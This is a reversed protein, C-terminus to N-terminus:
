CSEQDRLLMGTCKPVRFRNAFLECKCMFLYYVNLGCGRLTEFNAQGKAIIVDANQLLANAEDSIEEMWTGAVDNGNDMVRAVEALGVQEADDRNADNLVDGGRVLVTLKASPNFAGIARLFLKDMVVEGCNDTIYVVSQAQSLDNRLAAYNDERVAVSDATDILRNLEEESVNHGGAGFDIYNGILAYRLAALLPDESALIRKEVENAKQLMLANFHRKVPAMEERIGFMEEKLRRIERILVPAGVHLPADALITLVRQMYATRQEPTASDPYANLNKQLLCRLCEAHMRVQSM